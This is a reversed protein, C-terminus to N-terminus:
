RKSSRVVVAHDNLQQLEIMVRQNTLIGLGNRVKVDLHQSELEKADLFDIRPRDLLLFPRHSDIRSAADKAFIGARRASDIHWCVQSGRTNVRNPTHRGLDSERGLRLLVLCASVEHLVVLGLVRDGLFELRQNDPRQACSISAHTLARILLEPDAFDHGLRKAFAALDASLRM